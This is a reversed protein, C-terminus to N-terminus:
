QLPTNKKTQVDLALRAALQIKVRTCGSGEATGVGFKMFSMAM